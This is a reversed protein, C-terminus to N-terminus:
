LRHMAMVLERRQLWSRLWRAVQPQWEMRAAEGTGTLMHNWDLARGVHAVWLAAAFLPKLSSAPLHASWPELYADRLRALRRQGDSRAFDAVLLHCVLLLSCFPHTLNADGWDFFWYAGDGTLINGAHLDGHDLAAPYPMAALEHCCAEFEPLLARIAAREEVRLGNSHGLCLAAENALLEGFLAPLAALRRDPVGLALWRTIEFHSAIQMEAYLPLLHQWVELGDAGGLAQRLTHGYDRLLMWGCRQEIALPAPVRDSWRQALATVLGPEHCGGPGSAKFYMFGQPTSVRLVLAWPRESVWEFEGSPELGRGCLEAHLWTRM